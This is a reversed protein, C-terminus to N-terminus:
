CYILEVTLRWPRTNNSRRDYEARIKYVWVNHNITYFADTLNVAVHGTLDQDLQWKEADTVRLMYAIKFVGENWVNTDIDPTADNVWEPLHVKKAEVFETGIVHTYNNGNLTIGAM